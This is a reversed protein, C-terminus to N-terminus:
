RTIPIRFGVTAGGEPNREAFMEGGHDHVIQRSIALGLGAGGTEAARSPDGRYFREFIYPLDQEAIGEGTDRIAVEALGGNEAIAVSVSGVHTHRLANSLLNRMVQSLRTEDGLVSFSVADSDATMRVAVESPAMASARAVERRSLEAIDIEHMEYSLRGSEATSLERLEEVLVSLHQLDDLLSALREGNVPVIGDVMGEAQARAAAIPNRLEHSVDAVLRRRLEEANELSDAMSNFADGLAAVEAPGAVAVRHTLDGGSVREAAHELRRLPRTLYAALFYAVVAAVVVAILGGIYVSQDVSQIFTQEAAGLMRHGMGRGPGMPTSPLGALYADFAGSLADRAIIGVALVTGLAVLLISAFVEVGLGIRGKM